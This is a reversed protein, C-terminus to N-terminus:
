FVIKFMCALDSLVYNTRLNQVPPLEWDCFRQNQKGKVTHYFLAVSNKDITFNLKNKLKEGDACKKLRQKSMATLPSALKKCVKNKM